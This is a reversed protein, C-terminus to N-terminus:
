RFFLIGGCAWILDFGTLLIQLFQVELVLLMAAEVTATVSAVGSFRSRHAARALLDQIM